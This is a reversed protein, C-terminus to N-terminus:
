RRRRTAIALGLMMLVGLGIPSSGETQGPVSCGCAGGALGGPVRPVVPGPDEPNMPEDTIPPAEPVDPTLEVCGDATCVEGAECAASAGDDVAGDCDDDIGNCLERTAEVEGECAGWVGGTCREVGAVCVGLDSGCGREDGDRCSCSPDVVGDCDDDVSNCGEVAGPRISASTDVCDGDCTRSGDGDADFGEDITGDCDNDLGDCLEETIERAIGDLAASLEALSNAQLYCHNAAAPDSLSADCGPLETGAAIAARNLTLSDVAAGFGVVYVTVGADRLRAV